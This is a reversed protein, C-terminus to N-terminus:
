FFFCQAAEREDKQPTSGRRCLLAMKAQEAKAFGLRSIGGMKYNRCANNYVIHTKRTKPELSQRQSNQLFVPLYRPSARRPIIIPMTDRAVACPSDPGNNFFPLTNTSSNQWKRSSWYPAKTRVIRCPLRSRLVHPEWEEHATRWNHSPRHIERHPCFLLPPGLQRACSQSRNPARNSPLMFM